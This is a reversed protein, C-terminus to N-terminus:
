KNKLQIVTVSEHRFTHQFKQSHITVPESRPHVAESHLEDNQDYISSSFLMTVKASAPVFGTLSFDASLDRTLDRNVCFLTLTEKTESVAAVVDLYPAKPIEPIRTIGDHVDYTEGQTETAVLQAAGANSYMSFAYYAPTGYARGRKKWIGGFEIIGTMDSIPVIDSNRLLMNLFGGTAIAGGMNDFRPAVDEPAHFLWETFATRIDKAGSSDLQQRMQRLKRELGIPLAFSAEALFDPSPNKKVTEADGVVFHTSLYAFTGAPNTLQAANWDSYSDPDGGTGILRAGPDVARIADSFAKTRSAILDITPYGAQFTGWLENGLEWVLGGSRDGWHENVYKVWAAAEDPTGTGLNLAIQPQAGILKCYQLFEDTGFQNYEPIGWAVNLMSVRKDLPGIGDRWHYASTFNGGFRVLPTKMARSMAVMDPDMGDVADAPFLAAQDVLVRTGDRASLVFDAPELPALKGEPIDLTAEYKQWGDNKLAVAQSALVIDPKNRERISIELSAPGSIHKVYVSANYRWVRHVPLYIKERVGTEKQPLAMILVSRFSNAADNWRPEYREGQAYDLPEWPLPLGLASARALAPEEKIMEAIRRASWLNEEFSPNTLADAWLGGYTSNGIPELFTGFITAPIKFPLPKSVDITIVTTSKLNTSKVPSQSQASTLSAWCLLSFFLVLLIGSRM